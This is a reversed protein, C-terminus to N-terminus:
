ESPKNKERIIEAAISVAIEEPTDSNIDVGIPAHVKRLLSRSVGGKISEHFIRKLKARTGMIGIYKVKKKIISNLAEKDTNFGTTVIIFYAETYRDAIKGLNKYSDVIVEDAFKNGSLFTLDKRDDTVIVNFGLMSMQRSVALGVHGCGAIVVTDKHGIREEYTWNSRSKNKYAFHRKLHDRIQYRLGNRDIVLLGASKKVAATIIREIVPLDKKNLMVTVNTQSGACILGSRKVSTRKNHYLKEPKIETDREGSELFRIVDNIHNFEMIGGGISGMVEKNGSVAMKFGQKGPSGKENEIVTTLAVPRGKKIQTHIFKWFHIDKM